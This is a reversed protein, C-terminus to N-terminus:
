PLKQALRVFQEGRDYENKFWRGFSAFAPSFLIVDGATAIDAARSVCASLGEEEFSSVGPLSFVDKKIRETGKEKLLVVAKCRKGAEAVLEGMELGKDDGGMILVIKRRGGEPREDDASLARLAAVTAAPTTANNDNYIAVGGATTRLFELRGEVSKFSEVSEKVLRDAVGLARAAERACAVNGRNHDGPLRIAWDKPVDSKRATIFHAAPSAALVREAVSEGCILYDGPNQYKFINAKDGFYRAMSGRYYNMHDPLFTTFVAIRPSIGAEGFGQLQWSDLELVAYKPRGAPEEIKELLPLTATDKVNGGLFVNEEGFARKLIEYLLFTTTTKGRTGTIGVIRVCEPALKAFLSADMEVPIGHKRAEVIEPADFAVGAAKLIFDRGRFDELRHGGLAYTINSFGALRSLSPSLEEASKLDTVVLEAGCRALFETDGLGRGLLGLGM